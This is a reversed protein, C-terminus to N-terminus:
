EKGILEFIRDPPRAVIAQGNQEAIPREILIPNEVLIQLWEDETINKGSYREMYLPESKRVLQSPQMHLKELLTKLEDSTLPDALYWRTIHPVNREQLMELAGRCKSCEGNHYITILSTSDM